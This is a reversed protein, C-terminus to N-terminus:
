VRGAYALIQGSTLTFTMFKGYLITGAPLTVGTITGVIPADSAATLSAFVTDQLCNIAIYGIGTAFDTAGTHATTDTVVVLGKGGLSEQTLDALNISAGSETIARGNQASMDNLLSM